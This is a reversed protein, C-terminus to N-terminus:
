VITVSVVKPNTLDLLLFISNTSTRRIRGMQALFMLSKIRLSSNKFKIFKNNGIESNCEM